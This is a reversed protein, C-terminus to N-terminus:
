PLPTWCDPESDHRQWLTGEDPNFMCYYPGCEFERTGPVCIFGAECQTLIEEGEWMVCFQGGEEGDSAPDGGAM